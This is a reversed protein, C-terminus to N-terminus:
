KSKGAEFDADQKRQLRDIEAAILAGAKVLERIRVDAPLLTCLDGHANTLRRSDWAKRWRSPWVDPYGGGHWAFAAAAQALSGDTHRDDFDAKFGEDTMQREREAAILQTGTM